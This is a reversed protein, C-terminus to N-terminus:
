PILHRRSLARDTTAGGTWVGGLYTGSDTYRHWAGAEYLTLDVTGDGDYDLPSPQCNAGGATFVGGSYTATALDYFHWAGGNFLVPDEDGDGDYDGPVPKGTTVGIWIGKLYTGNDDYFHWASGAYVSFDATGDGDYDMPAPITNPGPGTWVSSTLAGSAYDYFLWTGDRYVVVDDDGDGDYDAPVPIDTSTGGILINKQFIGNPYYFFWVGDCLQALDSTGNGDYDGLAPICSTSGGTWVGGLYTGGWAAYRHWGGASYLMLDSVGDGNFDSPTHPTSRCYRSVFALRNPSGFLPATTTNQMVGTSADTLIHKWVRDPSYIMPWRNGELVRAAIGAVLPSAFSTGSRDEQRAATDSPVPFLNVHEFIGAAEVARAPAFLDVAVGYNSGPNSPAHCSDGAEDNCVWRKDSASSGGVSIVHGGNGHALRAPSVTNAPENGNGAAVVVTLGPRTATEQVLLNVYSEFMTEPANPAVDYGFSMNVVAPRQRLVYDDYIWKLGDIADDVSGVQSCNAVRVPIITVGKAIGYTLGGVISAVATGHGGTTCYWHPDGGCDIADTCPNNADGGYLKIDGAEYGVDVRSTHDTSSTWFEHHTGRVGTDVVYVNVGAGTNCYELTNNLPLAHQDVRDLQWPAPNQVAAFQLPVNREVQKVLPNRAIADAAAKPITLSMGPIVGDWVYRVQGGHRSALETALNRAAQGRVDNRFQVIYQERGAQALCPNAALCVIFLTILLVVGTTRSM